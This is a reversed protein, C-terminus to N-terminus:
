CFVREVLYLHLNILLKHQQLNKGALFTIQDHLYHVCKSKINVKTHILYFSPLTETIVRVEIQKIVACM